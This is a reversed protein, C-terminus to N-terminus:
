TLLRAIGATAERLTPVITDANALVRDMPGVVNLCAVARGAVLVPSAFAGVDPVTEGRNRAVGDRRVEDLEARVADRTGADLQTLWADRERVPLHALFCKGASTPYLPRRERLPAVYRIPRPSEVLDLYVVSRGVQGCLAVTEGTTGVLDELVPRAVDLLAPRGSPLLAGLAPGLVYRGGERPLLYGTAVLGHVLGHVSSRPAAVVAALDALRVGDRSAAVTELITTVRTVTRHEGAAM